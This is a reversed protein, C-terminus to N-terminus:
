LCAIAIFTRDMTRPLNAYPKDDDNQQALSLCVCESFLRCEFEFQVRHYLELGIRHDISSDCVSYMKGIEFARQQIYM